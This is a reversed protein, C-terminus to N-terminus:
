AVTVNKKIYYDLTVSPSGGQSRMLALWAKASNVGWVGDDFPKGFGNDSVLTKDKIKSAVYQQVQKIIKPDSKFISNFGEALKKVWAADAMKADYRAWFKQDFQKKSEAIKNSDVRIKQNKFDIAYYPWPTTEGDLKYSLPQGARIQMDGPVSGITSWVSMWMAAKYTQFNAPDVNFNSKGAAVAGTQKSIDREAGQQSSAPPTPPTPQAVPKETQEALTKVKRTNTETLNKVGFRLMNEALNIKM